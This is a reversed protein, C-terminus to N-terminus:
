VQSWTASSPLAVHNLGDSLCGKRLARGSRVTMALLTVAHRDMPWHDFFRSQKVDNVSVFLSQGLGRSTVQGMM